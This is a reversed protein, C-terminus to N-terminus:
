AAVDLFLKRLDKPVAKRRCVPCAREVQICRNICSSCFLHGCATATPVSMPDICVPCTLFFAGPPPKGQILDTCGNEKCSEGCVHAKPSSSEETTVALMHDPGVEVTVGDPVPANGDYSADDLEPPDSETDEPWYVDESDIADDDDVSPEDRDNEEPFRALGVDDEWGEYSDDIDDDDEEEDSDDGGGGHIASLEIHAHIGAPTRFHRDCAACYNHKRSITYHARLANGNAFRIDCKECKPHNPSFLVHQDRLEEDPFYRDCLSCYCLDRQVVIGSM